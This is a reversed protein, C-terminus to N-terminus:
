LHLLFDEAQWGLSLPLDPLADILVPVAAPDGTYTLAQAVRFRVEADPDALLKRVAPVATALGARALAQGAAARRVPARDALAASDSPVGAKKLVEEDASPAPAEVRDRDGRLVAVALAVLLLTGGM